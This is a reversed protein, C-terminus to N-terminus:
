KPWTPGQWNDTIFSPTVGDRWVQFSLAVTVSHAEGSHFVGAPIRLKRVRHRVRYNPINALRFAGVEAEGHGTLHCEISEVDAHCHSPVPFGPFLTVQEVQFQDRRFVIFEHSGEHRTVCVPPPAIPCGSEWWWDFFADLNPWSM